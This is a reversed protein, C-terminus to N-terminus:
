QGCAHRQVAEVQLAAASLVILSYFTFATPAVACSDSIGHQTYSKAVSVKFVNDLKHNEKM